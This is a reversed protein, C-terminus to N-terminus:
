APRRRSVFTLDAWVGAHDSPWWTPDTASPTDFGGGRARVALPGAVWLDDIGRDVRAWSPHSVRGETDPLPTVATPATPTPRVGRAMPPAAPRERTAPGDGCVVRAEVEDRRQMWALLPQVQSRRLAADARSRDRHPVSVALGRGELDRRVGQAVLALPRDAGTATEVVPDRTVLAEGELLSSGNLHSQQRRAFPRGLRDRVMRQLWRGTQLPLCIAQFALIEPPLAALQDVVLERRLDWRQHDPALNLTAVRGAMTAATTAPPCPAPAPRTM